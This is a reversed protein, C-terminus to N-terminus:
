IRGQIRYLVLGLWEHFAYEVGVAGYSQPVLAAPSWPFATAMYRCGSPVVEIGQARFCRVARPLHAADTVLVIRQIGASKLIRASEVANEYTNRSGAELLLKEAPIGLEIMLDRMSEALQPGINQADVKGGSLLVPCTPLDRYVDAGHLCRALTDPALVAKPRVADAYDIGGSLVVIAQVDAPLSKSPPYAWELSGLALYGTLPMCWIWLMALALVVWRLRRRAEPQRRWCWIMAAAVGLFLLPLPHLFDRLWQFLM